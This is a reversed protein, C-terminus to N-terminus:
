RRAVEVAKAVWVRLEEVDELTEEAVAYYQMGEREDGFPLFPGLGRAEFEARNTDDVKFYLVDGAILAFFLDGAYIGIGGFMSRARVRPGVRSLQDVIFTRFSSSVPM